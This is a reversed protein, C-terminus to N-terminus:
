PAQALKDQHATFEENEEFVEKLVDTKTVDVVHAEDSSHSPRPPMAKEGNTGLFAFCEGLRLGFTLSQVAVKPAGEPTRYVKRLKELRVVDDNGGGDEIRKAEAAVDPDDEIDRQQLVPDLHRSSAALPSHMLFDILVTLFFYSPALIYMCMADKGAVDWELLAVETNLQRSIVSNTCIEFLGHGLCFGPFLRYIWMLSENVDKTNKILNLIYSTLMLLLGTLFNLVLSLIQASTHKAFLFSLLYSFPAVALGYGAFIVFSAWLAGHQVFANIGFLWLFLITFALPLVYLCVDWLFNSTWYAFISVGSILQQHKSNHHAERERVVYAVIAPPIWSFAIIIVFTSTLDVVASVVQNLEEFRSRTVPHSTVKISGKSRLQQLGRSLLNLFAPVAHPASTNYFIVASTGVTSNSTSLIAGYRVDSRRPLESGEQFLLTAMQLVEKPNGVHPLYPTSCITGVQCTDPATGACEVPCITGITGLPPQLLDCVQSFNAAADHCVEQCKSRCIGKSVSAQDQCTQVCGAAGDQCAGAIADQCGQQDTSCGIGIGVTSVLELFPEIKDCIEIEKWCKSFFHPHEECFEYVPVGDAYNRGFLLGDAVGREVQEAEPRVHATKLAATLDGVGGESINFAAPADAGFQSAVDMLLPPLHRSGIVNLIGLGFALLVMPMVVTCALAKMDRRGYRARKMFLAALHTVHRSGEARVGSAWEQLGNQTSPHEGDMEGSAVKLFVEELKVMSLGYHALGIEDKNRELEDLLGHFKSTSSSPLQLSLEAGIDTIKQAEPIHRMVASQIPDEDSAHCVDKRACMLRYGAGFHAKLFLSSGCVCLRGEAMIAVRDGLIEAEDMFHTTLVVVRGERAARIINWTARRSYPDMGSTPEDLFVVPPRGILALCLSLKRKQGGSLAGARTQAKETLGVQQMMENCRSTVEAAPVGRLQAYVTLHEWVTLELWLVDHQPCVGIVQRIAQISNSLRHGAVIADGSSPEVMGTLMNITTSKGAGNHGLLALIQGEFMAMDLSEVAVKKGAPTQFERGLALTRVVCGSAASKLRLAQPVEEAAACQASPGQLAAEEATAAADGDASRWISQWFSRRFIFNPSLRVGYEKPLVRDFYWGLATFLVIDLCMMALVSIFSCNRVEMFVDGWQVGVRAAEFKAITQLGTCFAANPMLMLLITVSESPPGQRNQSSYVIWQAFMIIMGVIGGTRSQNFFCHIFWAFALFSMCWLWFFMFILTLSSGPFVYFSAVIAFIACLAAFIIGYTVFWSSIIAFSRVGLMRLSERIKTEKESILENLVKKQTYLFAVIFVLPFALAILEYFGDIVRGAVPMALANVSQPLYRLHEALVAQTEPTEGMAWRLGGELLLERRTEETLEVDSPWDIIYRDVLLQLTIFGRKFYTFAENMRLGLDLPRTPPVQTFITTGASVNLRISYAWDGPSGKEGSPIQHFVIAGFIRAGSEMYNELESSTLIKPHTLNAFGPLIGPNVKKKMCPLSKNEAKGPMIETELKGLLDRELPVCPINKLYLDPFWEETITKRFKEVKPFDSAHDAALVIREGTWHLYALVVGFDVPELLYHTWANCYSRSALSSSAELELGEVCVTSKNKEPMHGGWGELIPLECQGTGNCESKAWWLLALVAIPLLLECCAALPCWPCCQASWERKKLLRNKRMLAFFHRSSAVRQPVVGPAGSTGATAHGNRGNSGILVERGEM